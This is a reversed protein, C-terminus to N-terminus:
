DEGQRVAGDIGEFSGTQILLMAAPARALPQRKSLTEPLLCFFIMLLILGGFIALFWM